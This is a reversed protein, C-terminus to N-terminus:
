RRLSIRIYIDWGRPNSHQGWVEELSDNTCGYKFILDRVDKATFNDPSYRVIEEELFRNERLKEIGEEVTEVGLEQLLENIDKM